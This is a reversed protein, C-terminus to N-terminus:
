ERRELDTIGKCLRQRPSPRRWVCRARWLVSPVAEAASPHASRVCGDARPGVRFVSRHHLARRLRGSFRAAYGCASTSAAISTFGSPPPREEGVRYHAHSSLEGHTTYSQRELSPRVSPVFVRLRPTWGSEVHVRPNPVSAEWKKKKPVTHGRLTFGSSEVRACLRLSDRSVSLRAPDPSHLFPRSPQARYLRAGGRQPGSVRSAELPGEFRCLIAWFQDSPCLIGPFRRFDVFISSFRRFDVSVSSFRGFNSM